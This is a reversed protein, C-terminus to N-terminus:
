ISFWIIKSVDHLFINYSQNYGLIWFNTNFDQAELQLLFQIMIRNDVGINETNIIRIFFVWVPVDTHRIQIVNLIAVSSINKTITNLVDVINSFM